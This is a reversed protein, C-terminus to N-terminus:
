QLSGEGPLQEDARHVAAVFARVLARDKVGRSSEVGSSVDVAYPHLTRIARSVNDPRLGGAVIFPKTLTRAFPAAKEWDFSQGTGGLASDAYCDLLVGDADAYAADPSDPKGDGIRLVAITRLPPEMPLHADARYYQVASVGLEALGNAESRNQVVAVLPVYPGIAAAIKEVDRRRDGMYRSTGPVFIVGIAHAGCEAAWAADDRNTVGCIKIRTM